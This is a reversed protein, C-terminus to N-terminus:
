RYFVRIRHNHTDSVYINDDQDVAVGFPRNLDASLADVNEGNYGLNGTGIITSVAGTAMDIARIRHNKDDAVLMTSGDKTFEIDRPFNFMASTLRDGEAFGAEATPSGAFRDVIGTEIDIVRIMSNETDAIYLRGDPGVALAGGPEPNESKPFSFVADIAPGGDGSYGKDGTGALTYVTDRTTWVRLKLNRMDCIVVDGNPLFEVHSPQNMQVEDAPAEDDGPMFGVGFGLVVRTTHDADTDFSRLKHTHWSAVLGVGDPWYIVETPHNLNVTTGPAGAETMDLMEPDGDGLFDTGMVTEFTGDTKVQRIKHNNWDVVTAPAYDSFEVDFPFYLMSETLTLGDGNFGALGTGAWTCGTGPAKECPELGPDVPAGTEAGTETKGCSALLVTAILAKTLVNM